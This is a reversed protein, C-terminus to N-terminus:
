LGVPPIYILSAKYLAKTSIAKDKTYSFLSLGKLFVGAPPLPRSNDLTDRSSAPM